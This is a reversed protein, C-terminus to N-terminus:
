FDRKEICEMLRFDTGDINKTWKVLTENNEGSVKVPFKRHTTDVM